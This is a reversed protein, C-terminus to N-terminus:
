ARPDYEVVVVDIGDPCEKYLITEVRDWAEKETLKGRALGSCIKPMILTTLTRAKMDQFVRELGRQVSPWDVMDNEDSHSYQTYLNYGRGWPYDHFSFLGLKRRDGQKTAQDALYLSPFRDRVEKAIGRGMRNLCNCGHLFAVYNGKEALTLANGKVYTIM